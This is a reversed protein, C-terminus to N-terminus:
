VNRKDTEQVFNYLWCRDYRSKPQQEIVFTSGRMNAQQNALLLNQFKEISDQNVVSM